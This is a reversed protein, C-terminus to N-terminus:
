IKDNHVKDKPGFHIPKEIFEITMRVENKFCTQLHVCDLPGHENQLQEYLSIFKDRYEELKM